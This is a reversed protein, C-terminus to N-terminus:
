VAQKYNDNWHEELMTAVEDETVKIYRMFTKESKHGTIKMISIAPFGQKFLNTAFSRRACHTSVLEWKEYMKEKCKTGHTRTQIIMDKFGADKAIYKLERNIFANCYAKPLKGDYRDIIQKVIPHFPIVVHKGTKQTKIRLRNNIINKENIQKYDGFRLGTYCGIVFLDRVTERPENNSLDLDLMKRIENENLYIHMVEEQYVKFRKDKFVLNTNQGQLTAANLFTKLTKIMKGFTNNNAGREEIYFEMFDYYWDMTFDDWHLKKIHRCKKYIDMIRVMDTYSRITPKKKTHKSEEIFQKVFDEFELQKKQQEKKKKVGKKSKNYERRVYDPSPDIGDYLAKNVIDEFSQKFKSLYMNLTSFGKYSRKVQQAEQNWYKPHIRKKTSFYRNNGKDSYRLFIITTGDKNVASKNTRIIYKFTAM